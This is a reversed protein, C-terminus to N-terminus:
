NKKTFALTKNLFLPAYFGITDSLPLVEDAININLIEILYTRRTQIRHWVAPYAKKLAARLHSDAIAIPEECSTGAYGTISPIIDIQFLQGSKVVATSDKTFPSALWEEDATFHGPNLWWGYEEQPLTQKMQAYMDKGSLGTKITELWTAYATFYPRAAREIYDKQEDPLQSPEEVIYGARSSLGGKYGVTISFTDQLQIEKDRPYVVANTFRAGTATITTVSNPQGDQALLAAIEKETKGIEVRQLARYLASGALTGGYEYYAIENANNVTRIGDIPSILASAFNILKGQESLYKYMENVFYYPIEFMDNNDYVTSTFLKWGIIGIRADPSINAEEFYDAFKKDNGMPQNPLSFFPIHVAEAKIRSKSALKLNENGLLLYSEGNDHLVLCAEEFRPVFGTFYEFNAGHERDAYIVATDIQHKKMKRLFNEHRKALTDDTLIVSQINTHIKPPTVQKLQIEM